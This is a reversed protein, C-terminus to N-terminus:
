LEEEKCAEYAEPHIPHPELGMEERKANGATMCDRCFVANNLSPVKKPNFTFLEGCVGCSGWCERPCTLKSKKM